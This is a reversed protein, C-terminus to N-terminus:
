EGYQAAYFEERSKIQNRHPQLMVQTMREMEPSDMAHKLGDMSPYQPKFDAQEVPKDNDRGSVIVAALGAVIAVAAFAFNPNYDM